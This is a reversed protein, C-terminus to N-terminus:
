VDTIVSSQSSMRASPSLRSAPPFKSTPSVNPNVSKKYPVAYDDSGYTLRQKDDHSVLDPQSQFPQSYVVSSPTPSVPTKPPDFDPENPDVQKDEFETEPLGSLPEHTRYSKDYSRRKKFISEGSADSTPSSFAESTNTPSLSRALLTPKQYQWSSEESNVYKLYVRYAIYAIVILLPILVAFVIASATALQRQSYEQQGLHSLLKINIM